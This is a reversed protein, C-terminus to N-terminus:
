EYSGNIEGTNVEGEGCWLWCFSCGIQASLPEARSRVPHVLQNHMKGYCEACFTPLYGLSAVHLSPSGSSAYQKAHVDDLLNSCRDAVHSGLWGSRAQQELMASLVTVIIRLKM